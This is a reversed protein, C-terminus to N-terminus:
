SNRFSGPDEDSDYQSIDVTNPPEWNEDTEILRAFDGFKELAVIALKEKFINFNDGSGLNYFQSLSTQRTLKERSKLNTRGRRDQNANANSTADDNRMRSIQQRKISLLTLFTIILLVFM